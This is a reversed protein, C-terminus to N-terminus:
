GQQYGPLTELAQASSQPQAQGEVAGIVTGPPRLGSLNELCKSIRFPIPIYIDSSLYESSSRHVM